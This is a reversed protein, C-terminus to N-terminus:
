KKEAIGTAGFPVRDRGFKGPYTISPLYITEYWKFIAQMSMRAVSIRSSGHYFFVFGSSSNTPTLEPNYVVHPLVCHAPNQTYVQLPPDDDDDWRLLMDTANELKVSRVLFIALERWFNVAVEGKPLNFIYRKERVTLNDSASINMQLNDVLEQRLEAARTSEHMSEAPQFTTIFHTKAKKAESILADFEDKADLPLEVSGPDELDRFAVEFQELVERHNASESLKSQVAALISNRLNPSLRRRNPGRSLVQSIFACVNEQKKSQFGKEADIVAKALEVHSQFLPKDQDTLPAQFLLEILGLKM